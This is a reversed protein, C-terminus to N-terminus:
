EKTFTSAQRVGADTFLLLYTGPALNAMAMRTETSGAVSSVAVLKRGDLGFVTLSAVASAAPHRATLQSAAPNPYFQLRASAAGSRTGSTTTQTEGKVAVDRLLGYRGASGSGCSQYVRVTLTQGATLTLPANAFAFRFNQNPGSNQNNLVVPTAFAGNATSLLGGGPGNGGVVDASDSVFGSRSWVVALKTNSNTGYFASWLLLSDLRVGLGSAVVTFQRYFTRNLNGGPGGASTGWSGDGNSTAGVAQGYAASYAPVTAVATGNSVYLKHLGPVTAALNASRLSTSDRNNRRLAWLQLVNSIPQPANVKTGTLAVLVDTAGVSRHLIDGAYGGAATANLRVSIATAALTNNTATLVLPNVPTNWTTGGNGSIEFSAPPTITLPATLNAGSVQYGRPTSPGNNYQVIPGVGGTITIAPVRSIDLTDSLHTAYGTKSARLYYYFRSGAVPVPDTLQFNYTTDNAATVSGVAAYTGRRMASRLLEYQVQGIGWSPNWTFSTLTAGMVGRFNSSVVNPTFAGCVGTAVACPNWTGFLSSVAYQATDAPTLQRSWGVRSGVSAATGRFTRPQFEAFSILNVDTGADWVAWGTPQIIGAGYTPKLWAVKNQALPVNGTSNQWPRGLYYTTGGRNPAVICSRFVYGYAQGGPTNAATIYSSGTGSLRTKPYITCYEFVARANGFVFDVTGDIYCHRFYQRNGPGTALVTDQGGLFRCNWFVARDANVNIALAQPAEGTTNEFTLNLASFDAANVTVSASTSTGFTGGGPMAKGSYDDFTLVTNGVSEGVLQLFPKTNPVNIKEKYKGNRIYITFVATRGTPAANIAAQVAHFNTASVPLALDVTLDYAHAAPGSGLM